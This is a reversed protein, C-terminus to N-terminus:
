YISIYGLLLLQYMVVSSYLIASVGIYLKAKRFHSHLCLIIMGSYVVAFKMSWAKHGFTSVAWQVLPNIERGGNGLIIASFFADLINLGAILLLSLFLEQSYRDVYGGRVKDEARRFSCRRGHLTYRSLIPTPKKRRDPFTRSEM